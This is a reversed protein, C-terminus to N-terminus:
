GGTSVRRLRQNGIHIIDQQIFGITHTEHFTAFRSTEGMQDDIDRRERFHLVLEDQFNIEYFGMYVWHQSLDDPDISIISFTYPGYLPSPGFQFGTREGEQSDYNVWDGFIVRETTQRPDVSHGEVSWTRTTLDFNMWFGFDQLQQSLQQADVTINQINARHTQGELDVFDLPRNPQPRILNALALVILVLLGLSFGNQKVFKKM